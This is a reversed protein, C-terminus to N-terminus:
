EKTLRIKGTLLNQMLGQRLKVYKNRKKLLTTIEWDMESLINSIQIQEEKTPIPIVIQKLNNKSVGYVKLGTAYKDFQTKVDMIEHIYGKFGDVFVRKVDRLLFTHLGSIAIKSDINKVEVSKGIGDYDESADAMIIDGVKISSYQKSKASDIRPLEFEKFDLFNDFRTHIDGYHVYSVQGETSLQSRSYSATKLFDFVEGYTIKEWGEKPSLLKQMSGQKIQRKKVIQKELSQILNDTDSLVEAIAKQEAINVPLAVHMKDVITIYIHKITSGGANEIMKKQYYDAELLMKLFIPHVKSNPRIVAVSQNICIKNDGVIALRGLTGDKTLLIDNKKPRSKDTIQREYAYATTKRATNYNIMGGNIDNATIMYVGNSVTPMPNTFGYSIFSFYHKLQQCEWDEPITGVEVKKYQKNVEM